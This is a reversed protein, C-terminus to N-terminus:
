SKDGSTATDEVETAPADETGVCLLMELEYFYVYEFFQVTRNKIVEVSRILDCINEACVIVTAM